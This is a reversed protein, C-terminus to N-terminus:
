KMGLFNVSVRENDMFKYAEALRQNGERRKRELMEDHKTYENEFLDFVRQERNNFNFMRYSDHKLMHAVLWPGLPDQVTFEHLLIDDSGNKKQLVRYVQYKGNHFILEVDPFHTNLEKKLSDPVNYWVKGPVLVRPGKSIPAKRQKKSKLRNFIYKDTLMFLTYLNNAQISMLILNASGARGAGM